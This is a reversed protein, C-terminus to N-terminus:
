TQQNLFDALWSVRRQLEDDASAQDDESTGALYLDMIWGSRQETTLHARQIELMPAFAQQSMFEDDLMASLLNGALRYCHSQGAFLSRDQFFFGLACVSSHGGEDDRWTMMRATEFTNGPQNIRALADRIRPFERVEPIADIQKPDDVLRQYPYAEGNESDEASYPINVSGDDLSLRLEVRNDM